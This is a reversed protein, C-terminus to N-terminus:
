AEPGELVLIGRQCKQTTLITNEVNVKVKIM